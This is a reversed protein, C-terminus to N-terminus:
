KKRNEILGLIRKTDTANSAPSQAHGLLFTFIQLNGSDSPQVNGQPFGFQHCSICNTNVQTYTELTVNVMECVNISAGGVPVTIACPGSPDPNLTNVMQYYQWPTGALKQQYSQNLAAVAQPIPTIRCVNVPPNSPLPKGYDIQAPEYSYGNTSCDTTTGNSFSATGSPPATLNDVQEFTAWYWTAHTSPTLRLIHLGVLGLTYPGGVSDNPLEVYAQMTYYRSFNDKGQVLIRWSAKLETAGFQAWDGLTIPPNFNAPQGTKPFGVFTSPTAQVANKQNQANYYANQNIYTFESENMREDFVVYNGYQDILPRNSAAEDFVGDATGASAKSLGGLVPLMKGSVPDLKTPLPVTPATWTGPAAALPLFVQEPMMWSLWTTPLSAAGPNTINATTDPQGPYSGSGPWNLAIFSQWGFDLFNPQTPTAVDTPVIWATDSIAPPTTTVVLNDTKQQCAAFTLAFAAIAAWQVRPSKSTKM